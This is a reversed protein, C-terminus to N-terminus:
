ATIAEDYLLKADPYVEGLKSRFVEMADGSGFTMLLQGEVDAILLRDPQGCIWQNRQVQNRLAKAVTQVSVESRIRFAAATFINNNMLHVLSAGEEVDSLHETPLLYKATLEETSSMDLDGPADNVSHEVTGGYCAFRQDTGYADWIRSLIKASQTDSTGLIEPETETQQTPLTTPATTAETNNTSEQPERRRCGTLLCVVMAFTFLIMITRKM